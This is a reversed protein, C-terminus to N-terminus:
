GCLRLMIASDYSSCLMVSKHWGNLYHKGAHLLRSNPAPPPLRLVAGAGMYSVPKINAHTIIAHYFQGTARYHTIFEAGLRAINLAAAYDRSGNWGCHECWLWAGWAEVQSRDAPSAYTNAPQGCRPCTHSTKQPRQWELRIGALFCKYKLIRWLEGRIQSNNRWNRWRGQANRGRGTSKLSKLSEGSILACESVAALLLLTNAALHALDRNRANYKRWCRSIERRYITVLQNNQECQSVDPSLDQQRKELVAIKAQLLDIQRRTRAQRGDFAGTNLFFPQGLQHGELDIVVATLLTRVGWDFGLVRELKNWSPQAVVPVQISFDLVAYSTGDAEQLARLTPALVKGQALRQAVTEPLPIVVSQRTWTRSWVGMEDPYRFALKIIRRELDVSLRHGQGKEPGDDGAYPLQGVKLLPIPQMEEYTAPFHGHQLYYNCSQEILSQLAVINGSDDFTTRLETLMSKIAKRNKAAKHQTTQPQILGETLLARIQQFLQKRESQARLIRGVMEAECRWQRSGHPQPSAIIAEVQKWAPGMMHQRFEDLRPWLAALAMNIVAKTGELLRLANSQAEDPLRLPYSLTQTVGARWM